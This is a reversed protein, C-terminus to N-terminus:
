GTGLLEVEFILTSNPPIKPPAGRAGYGLDSPIILKRVGGPQMGAVGEDWGKIVRGAGLPFSFPRGRDKSSDFKKGSVLWGTYHVSVTDGTKAAEGEGEAVDIYQLGSDTAVVANETATGLERAAQVAGNEAATEVTAEVAIGPVAEDVTTAPPTAAPAKAAPEKAKQCGIAALGSAVAVTLVSRRLRVSMM